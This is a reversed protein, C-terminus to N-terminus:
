QPNQGPEQRKDSLGFAVGIGAAILFIPWIRGWDLNLLFIMAVIFPFIGGYVANAVRHTIKGDERYLSWARSFAWVAPILIFLAWWNGFSIGAFNQILFILGIAILVLGGLWTNNRDRNVM